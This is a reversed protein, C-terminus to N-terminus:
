LQQLQAMLTVLHWVKAYLLLKLSKSIVIKYCLALDFKRQLSFSDNVRLGIKKPLSLNIKKMRNLAKQQCLWHLEKFAWLVWLAYCVSRCVYHASACMLFSTLLALPARRM